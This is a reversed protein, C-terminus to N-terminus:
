WTATFMILLDRQRQQAETTADALNDHWTVGKGVDTAPAAATAQAPRPQWRFPGFEQAPLNLLAFGTVTAVRISAAASTM